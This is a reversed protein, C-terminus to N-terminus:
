NSTFLIMPQFFFATALKCQWIYNALLKYHLGNNSPPKEDPIKIWDMEMLDASPDKCYNM